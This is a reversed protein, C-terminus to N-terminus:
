PTRGGSDDEHAQGQIGPEGRRRVLQDGSVPNEAVGWAMESERLHGSESYILNQPKFWTLLFVMLLMVFLLVGAGLAVLLKDSSGLDSIGVISATAGGIVLVALGFLVVPATISRLITGWGRQEYV